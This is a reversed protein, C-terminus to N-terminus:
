SFSSLPSTARRRGTLRIRGAFFGLAESAVVTAILAQSGDEGVERVLFWSRGIFRLELELSVFTISSVLGNDGRLRRRM